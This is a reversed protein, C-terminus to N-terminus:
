EATLPTSANRIADLTLAVVGEARPDEAWNEEPTGLGLRRALSARGSDASGHEGEIGSTELATEALTDIEVRMRDGKALAHVAGAVRGQDYTADQISPALRGLDTQLGPWGPDEWIFRRPM